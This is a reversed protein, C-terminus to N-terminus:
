VDLYALVFKDIYPRLMANMMSQFTAPANTLGFPM